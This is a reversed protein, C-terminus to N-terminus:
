AGRGDPELFDHKLAWLIHFDAQEGALDFEHLAARLDAVSVPKRSKFLMARLAQEDIASDIGAYYVPAEQGRYLAEGSRSWVLRLEPALRQTTYKGFLDTFSLHLPHPADRLAGAPAPRTRLDEWLAVYRAIIKDWIYNDLVHRRAAAGMARRREADGILAALAEALVPVDLATQQALRLHYHSDYWLQALIDTYETQAPGTTPILLGTQGHIVTDKYGDYDSAIVPLGALGAELITIGFTEQINDSPSLFIDAAQYLSDREEDTPRAAIQLRLGMAKALATLIAPTDDEAQTWGALILRTAALDFGNGKLRHLARLVPLLDMNSYHSIRGVVLCITEGEDVGHRLRAAARKQPDPALAPSDDVGLPIRRIQPAKFIEPSLGYARRTAAFAREIVEGGSRSTAVIADRETVGPWLHGLYAPAYRAYSLSHTVGTIPFIDKSLYNRLRALATFQSVWDSLHFCHFNKRQLAEPLDPLLSFEFAGRGTLASFENELATKLNDAQGRNPLFFSYAAFPDARLLARLFAANAVGRGLIDGGELFPHLTAWNLAKGM